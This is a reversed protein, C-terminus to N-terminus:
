VRNAAPTSTLPAFDDLEQSSRVNPSEIFSQLKRFDEETEITIKRNKHTKVIIKGDYTWASDLERNNVLKRVEYYLQARPKTLAENIYIKYKNSPNQNFNKLNRKNGFVRAKDRYSVFRVIIDRPFKNDRPPGVRHSRCIHHLEMRQQEKPLIFQNTIRLVIDDTKEGREEPIGSLKLCTRRSYQEMSDMRNALVKIQNHLDSIESMFHESICTKISPKGLIVEIVKKTSEEDKTLQDLLSSLQSLDHNTDDVSTINSSSTGSESGERFRKSSPQKSVGSSPVSSSPGRGRGAGSGQGGSRSTSSSKNTNPKNSNWSM